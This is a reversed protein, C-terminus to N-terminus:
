KAEAWSDGVGADVLGDVQSEGDPFVELFGRVMARELAQATADADDASCEVVIEDHVHIVLAADLGTSTELARLM